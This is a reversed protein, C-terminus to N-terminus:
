CRKSLVVAQRYFVAAIWVEDRDLVKELDAFSLEKEKKAALLKETIESIAM